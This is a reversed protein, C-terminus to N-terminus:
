SAHNNRHNYIIIPNQASISISMVYINLLLKLTLNKVTMTTRVIESRTRGSTNGGSGGGGSISKNTGTKIIDRRTAKAKVGECTGSITSGEIQNWNWCRSPHMFSPLLKYCERENQLKKTKREPDMAGLFTHSTLM